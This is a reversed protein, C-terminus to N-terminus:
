PVVPLASLTSARVAITFMIPTTGDPDLGTSGVLEWVADKFYLLDGSELEFTANKGGLLFFRIKGKKYEEIVYDEFSQSLSESAPLNVVAVTDTQVATITRTGEVADYDATVRSVTALLGARFISKYARNQHPTYKPM